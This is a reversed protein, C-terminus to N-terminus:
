LPVRVIRHVVFITALLTDQAFSQAEEEERGLEPWIAWVLEAFAPLFSRTLPVPCEHVQHALIHLAPVTEPVPDCARQHFGSGIPHSCEGAASTDDRYGSYPLQM